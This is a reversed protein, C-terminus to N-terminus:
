DRPREEPNDPDAQPGGGCYSVFGTQPDEMATQRSLGSLCVHYSEAAPLKLAAIVQPVLDRMSKWRAYREPLGVRLQLRHPGDCPHHIDLWGIVCFVRCSGLVWPEDMDPVQLSDQKRGLLFSLSSTTKFQFEAVLDLIAFGDGDNWRITDM